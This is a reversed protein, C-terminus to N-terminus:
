AKPAFAPAISTLDRSLSAGAAPADGELDPQDAQRRRPRDAHAVVVGTVRVRADTANSPARTSRPGYANRYSAVSMGGPMVLASYRAPRTGRPWGCELDSSCVDSSWDCLSRTHRRRSSFFFFFYIVSM